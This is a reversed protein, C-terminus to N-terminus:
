FVFSSNLTFSHEDDENKKDSYSYEFKLANWNFIDWRLGFTHKNIDIDNPTFYPDGNEFNLFDFRYYPTLKDMKYGTQLYFGLTSFDNGSTKDDHHINFIEGLLELGSHMYTIYGGIIREKIRNIRASDDPNPPITDFYFSTGLKLEQVFYPEYSLLFSIAKSDNRDKATQIETITRGRGNLVDFSYELDFDVFELLGSLEIGFSHLPLFGGKDDEWFYIVPRLITTQLWTGHHFAQNWFGLPTHMRGIKINFTDSFSYKINAREPHFETSNTDPDTHFESELVFNVKDAIESTIFLSIHGLSFKNNNENDTITLNYGIDSFGLIRLKPIDFTGPLKIDNCLALNPILLLLSITPAYLLIIRYMINIKNTKPDVDTAKILM